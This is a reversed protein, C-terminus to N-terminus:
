KLVVEREFAGPAQQHLRWYEGAILDPDFRTGPQVFGSITVAAVHIGEPALEAALALALARIGAKGVSLSAHQPHPELALGGGTFLITGRRNARMEPIVLQAAELAAVANVRFERLFQESRMQSAPCQRGMSANYVLVQPSGMSSRIAQFTASLARSDAADAPFVQTRVGDKELLDRYRALAEARRAVLAVEYGERGFRRAVALGVGPGVGIVVAIKREM